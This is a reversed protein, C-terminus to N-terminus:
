ASGLQDEACERWGKVGSGTRLLSHASHACRTGLHAHSIISVLFNKVLDVEQQPHYYYSVDILPKGHTPCQALSLEKYENAYKIM